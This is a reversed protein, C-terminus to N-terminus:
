HFAYAGYGVVRDKAGATDGSNRLDLTQAKLGKQKALELLGNVTNRGCAMDYHIHEPQLNEIAVSTARDMQQATAYDKYHSLDSSVVILTKDDGWLQQLVEAVDKENADGVLLPILEFENLITQLFPIQVELSHEQDHANGMRAIQPLSIIKEISKQDVPVVGLPTAFGDTTPAVIGSFPIQHAPGLLVVKKIKDKVPILSTYASAAIPGSYVYGAHPAIIAKPPPINVESASLYKNIEESLQNKDDPYFMGAVAAPRINNM